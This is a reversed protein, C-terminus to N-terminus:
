RSLKSNLWDAARQLVLQGALEKGFAVLRAVEAPADDALDAVPLAIPLVVPAAGLIAGGARLEGHDYDLELAVGGPLEITARLERLAFLWSVPTKFRTDGAEAHAVAIAIRGLDPVLASPAFELRADDIVVRRARLPPRKPPKLRFLAAASVEMRTGAVELSRCDRDVLALGLPPLECHIAAVGIALHGVVDDRRVTLAELDLAGRVLSLSGREIAAEARLSEAIREAVGRRTGGELAFGAVVEAAGVVAIAAVAYGVIRKARPV